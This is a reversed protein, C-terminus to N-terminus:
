LLAEDEAMKQEETMYKYYIKELIRNLFIMALAPVIVILLPCIYVLVAGVVVILLCLLSQPFHAVALLASNKMIQKTTNAFRAVYTFSYIVLILEIILFSYLIPYFKGFVMGNEINAKMIESDWWFLFAMLGYILWMITSQKFNEKFSRFFESTMYGKKKRFVKDITYYMATTSAGVTVIPICCLLWLISLFFVDTLRSLFAFFPNDM